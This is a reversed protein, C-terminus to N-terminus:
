LAPKLKDLTQNDTKGSFYKDVVQLFIPHSANVQSFLTMCSCIKRKDTWGVVIELNTENLYLLASSMEILRTGLISHNLYAEAEALDKIGFYNANYSHGLGEMQPFIHWIWDTTKKGSQIEALAKSYNSMLPSYDNPKEQAEVFRELTM